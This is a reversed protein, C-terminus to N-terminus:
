LAPDNTFMIIFSKYLLKIIKFPGLYKMKQSFLISPTYFFIELFDVKHNQVKKPIKDTEWPYYPLKKYLVQFFLPISKKEKKITKTITQVKKENFYSEFLQFFIKTFIKFSIKLIQRNEM